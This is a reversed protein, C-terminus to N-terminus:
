VFNQVAQVLAELNELKATPPVGHGLNFIYGNRDRMLELLRTTESSVLAPDASALLGPTLNGQLAIHSPLEKNAEALEIEHDIGVAHARTQTLSAWDRTGKSYVIIPVQGNLVSIITRMWHGSAADFDDTPLLGGLSDFIQIADVGANIQLQLVEIVALTL